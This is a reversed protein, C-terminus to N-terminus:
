DDVTLSSGCGCASRARPTMVEFGQAEVGNRYTIISGGILTLSVPDVIIQQGESNFVHDEEKPRDLALRYQFGACGAGIVAVRLAVVAESPDAEPSNDIFAALQEAAAVDLCVQDEAVEIEKLIAEM